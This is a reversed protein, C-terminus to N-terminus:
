MVMCQVAHQVLPLLEYLYKGPCLTPTEPPEDDRHGRMTKVSPVLGYQGHLDALLLQLAIVQRPLPQQVEFNGVVLIGLSCANEGADHAGMAWDPRGQEVTGDTKIVYHYGIGAWGRDSMHLDNVYDADIKIPDLGAPMPGFHHVVFYDTRPRRLLPHAFQLPPKIVEIHEM